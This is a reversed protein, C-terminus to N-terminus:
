ENGSSRGSTSPSPLSFTRNCDVARRRPTSSSILVFLAAKAANLDDNLVVFNAISRMIRDLRVILIADFEYRFAAKMMSELAPRNADKGSLREVYEGVIEYGRAQAFARLKILQTEPDQRERDGDNTAKKDSKPTSVRAYLAVRV